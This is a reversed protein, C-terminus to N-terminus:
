SLALANLIKNQEQKAETIEPNMIEQAKKADKEQRKELAVKLKAQRSTFNNKTKELNKVSTGIFAVHGSLLHVMDDFCLDASEFSQPYTGQLDVGACQEFYDKWTQDAPKKSGHTEISTVASFVKRWCALHGSLFDLREGRVAIDKDMGAIAAEQKQRKSSEWEEAEM